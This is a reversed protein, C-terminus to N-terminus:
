KYRDTTRKLPKAPNGVVVEDIAVDKTVVAGIGVLAGKGVKRWDRIAVGPSIWSNEGISVSGGIITLAIIKCRNGISVNHAIHVLNDIKTGDGIVTDGISARDICTSSGISVNNGIKVGGVHPFELVDGSIPDDEFGFGSGGITVSSGIKVNSGILANEIQCNSGIRCGPGIIVDAGIVTFPGIIVDEAIVASSSIIPNDSFKQVIETEKWFQSIFRLLELRPFECPILISNTEAVKEYLSEPIFILGAKTKQIYKLGQIGEFRCFSVDFANATDIPKISVINNAMNLDGSASVGRETLFLELKKRTILLKGSM